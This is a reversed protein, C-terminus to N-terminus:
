PAVQCTPCFWVARAAVTATKIPGRCRVCRRRRYVYLREHRALQRPTQKGREAPDVTVIRDLRVGLDLLREAQRWLARWRAEGVDRAPTAPHVGVLFLLEARYVNGIGAVLAQDLLVAGAAKRRHAVNDVFRDESGDPRLPDPGLRAQIARMGQADLLECATPGSLWIERTDHGLVLRPASRWSTQPRRVRFRGYLGLHVHLWQDGEFQYLLHKGWAEVGRLVAGDLAAAGQAFRGQPSTVEVPGGAFWRAHDRARRHITHGEPM